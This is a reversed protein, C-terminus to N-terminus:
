IEEYWLSIFLTPGKWSGGSASQKIDIVRVAQNEELWDNIAKELDIQRPGESFPWYGINRLPDNQSFLKVKMKGGGRDECFYLGCPIYIQGKM